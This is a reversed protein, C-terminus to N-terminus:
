VAGWTLRGRPAAIAVKKLTFDMYLKYLDKHFQPTVKTCHNPFCFEAYALINTEFLKRLFAVREDLVAKREDDKAIYAKSAETLEPVKFSSPRPM